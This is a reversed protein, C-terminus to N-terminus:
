LGKDQVNCKELYQMNKATLGTRNASHNILLSMVNVDLFVDAPLPELHYM